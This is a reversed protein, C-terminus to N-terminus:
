ALRRLLAVFGTWLLSWVALLVVWGAVSPSAWGGSQAAAFVPVGLASLPLLPLYVTAAVLAALAAPLADAAAVLMAHSTLLVAVALWRMAGAAAFTAPRRDFRARRDTM